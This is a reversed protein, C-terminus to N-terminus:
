ALISNDLNRELPSPLLGNFYIIVIQKDFKSYKISFLEVERSSNPNENKTHEFEQWSALSKAGFTGFLIAMYASQLCKVKPTQGSSHLALPQGILNSSTRRREVSPCLTFVGQDMHYGFLVHNAEIFCPVRFMFFRPTTYLRCLIPVVVWFVPDLYCKLLTCLLPFQPFPTLLVCPPPWVACSCGAPRPRECDEWDSGM